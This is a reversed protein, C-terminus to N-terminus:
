KRYILIIIIFFKGKFIQKESYDKSLCIDLDSSNKKNLYSKEKEKEKEEILKANNININRECEAM